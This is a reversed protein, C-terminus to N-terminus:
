DGLPLEAVLAGDVLVRQTVLGTAVSTPWYVGYPAADSPPTRTFLGPYSALGLEVCASSFARGVKKEDPDKVTVRLESHPEGRVLDIAVAGFASAGGPMAAWLGRLAVEAKAEVDLGTLMFSMSNRFGGMFTM